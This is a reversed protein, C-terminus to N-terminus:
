DTRISSRIAELAEEITNVYELNRFTTPTASRIGNLMIALFAPIGVLYSTGRRPHSYKESYQAASMINRPFGKVRSLDHLSARLREMYRMLATKSSM